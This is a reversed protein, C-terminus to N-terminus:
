DVLSKKERVPIFSTITIFKCWHQYSWIFFLFYWVTPFGTGFVIGCQQFDLELFFVVSDSIWNWFGILFDYFCHCVNIFNALFFFLNNIFLNNIKEIKTLNYLLNIAHLFSTHRINKCSVISTDLYKTILKLLKVTNLAWSIFSSECFL